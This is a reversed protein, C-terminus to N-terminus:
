AVPLWVTVITGVGEESQIDVEGQHMDVLKKVIALGIGMGGSASRPNSAAVRYFRDWIRPLEDRPIGCGNDRVQIRVRNLEKQIAVTIKGQDTFQTANKVLNSIIQELREADAHLLIPDGPIEGLLKNGTEEVFPALHELVDRLFQCADITRPQFTMLGTELRTLGMIDDILQNLNNVRQAITEFSRKMDDPASIVGDQLAEVMGQIVTLPTRLEHSLEGLARIRQEEFRQQEEKFQQYREELSRIAMDLDQFEDETPSPYEALNGDQVHAARITLLKLPGRVSRTLYFAILPAAALFLLTLWLLKERVSSVIGDIGSYSMSVVLGGSITDSSGIPMALVISKERNQEEVTSRITKGAMVADVIKKEIKQGAVLRNEDSSALVVGDPGFLQFFLGTDEGLKSLNAAASMKEAESDLTLSLQQLLTNVRSGREAMYEFNMEKMQKEVTAAAAMVMLCPGVFLSLVIIALIRVQLSHKWYHQILEITRSALQAGQKTYREVMTLNTETM